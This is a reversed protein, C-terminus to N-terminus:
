SILVIRRKGAIIVLKVHLNATAFLVALAELVQKACTHLLMIWSHLM